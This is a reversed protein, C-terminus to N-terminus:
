SIAAAVAETFPQRMVIAGRNGRIERIRDIRYDRLIVQKEELGAESQRASEAVPRLFREIQNKRVIRNGNPGAIVYVTSLCRLAIIELYLNGKHEVIATNEIRSGWKRPAAEFTEPLGAKELRRNVASSYSVSKGAIGQVRSIKLLKGGLISETEKPRIVDAPTVASVTIISSEPLGLIWSIVASRVAAWRGSLLSVLTNNM